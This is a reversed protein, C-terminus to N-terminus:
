RQVDEMPPWKLKSSKYLIAKDDSSLNLMQPHHLFHKSLNEVKLIKLNDEVSYWRWKLYKLIHNPWRIKPIFNSYSGILPQQSKRSEFNQPRRGKSTM